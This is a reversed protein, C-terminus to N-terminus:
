HIFKRKVFGVRISNKALPTLRNKGTRWVVRTEFNVSTKAGSRDISARMKKAATGRKEIAGLRPLALHQAKILQLQKPTFQILMSKLQYRKATLNSKAITRRDTVTISISVQTTDPVWYVINEAYHLATAVAQEFTGAQFQASVLDTWRRSDKSAQDILIGHV